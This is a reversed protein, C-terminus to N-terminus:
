KCYTIRGCNMGYSSTCNRSHRPFCSLYIGQNLLGLWLSLGATMGTKERQPRHVFIIAYVVLFLGPVLIFDLLITNLSLLLFWAHIFCRLSYTLSRKTKGIQNGTKKANNQSFAKIPPGSRLFVPMVAPTTEQPDTSDKPPMM